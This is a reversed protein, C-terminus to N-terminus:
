KTVKEIPQNTFLLGVQGTLYLALKHLNDRYEEDEDRGLAVRMVKNKGLFFRCVVPFSLPTTTFLSPLHCTICVGTSM